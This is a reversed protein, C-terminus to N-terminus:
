LQSSTEETRRVPNTALNNEQLVIEARTSPMIENKRGWIKRTPQWERSGRNEHYNSVTGYNRYDIRIKPGSFTRICENSSEETAM